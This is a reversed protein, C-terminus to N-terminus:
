QQLAGNNIWDRITNVQTGTLPAGGKPMTPNSGSVEQYLPSGNANGANVQALVQTYNSLPSNPRSGGVRHCSVCRANLITQVSAYSPGTTGGGTDGGDGEDIPPTIVGADAANDGLAVIWDRLAELEFDSLDEENHPMIGDVAALYIASSQPEGPIIHADFLLADVDLINPIPMDEQYPTTTNHCHACRQDLVATAASQLLGVDVTPSASQLTDNVSGQHSGSCNQFGVFLLAISLTIIVNKTMELMGM